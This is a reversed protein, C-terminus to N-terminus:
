KLVDKVCRFGIDTTCFMPISYHRFAVRMYQMNFIFSGGRIVRNEGSSPGAPNSKPSSAYYSEDYWDACWEWANGGMDYLGYGNPAFSGVPSTYEWKDNGSTGSYNADDHTIDDGWPYIKGVLGGRAAKEWEAETPLRKGAWRAYAKADYWSIGVVPNNPTNYNPDSWYAPKGYGTEDMFKKYQVNTVECVDMYFADLYVKHVKGYYVKKDDDDGRGANSGMRFKGAPILNMRSGDNSIITSSYIYVVSQNTNINNQLYIGIIYSAIGFLVIFIIVASLELVYTLKRINESSVTATQTTTRKVKYKDQQKQKYQYHIKQDYVQRKIQNSLVEYAENLEKQKELALEYLQDNMHKDPHYLKSKDHYAKKIEDSTANDSLGLIDYYTKM